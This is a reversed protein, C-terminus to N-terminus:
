DFYDSAVGIPITADASRASRRGRGRPSDGSDVKREKAKTKRKPGLPTQGGAVQPWDFMGLPPAFPGFGPAEPSGPRHSRAEDSPEPPRGRSAAPQPSAQAGFRLGSSDSPEAGAAPKSGLETVADQSEEIQDANPVSQLDRSAFREIMTEASLSPGPDAVPAANEPLSTLERLNRRLEGQLRTVSTLYACKSEVSDSCEAEMLLNNIKHQALAVQEVLIRRTMETPQRAESVLETMFDCFAELPLGRITDSFSMSQLSLPTGIKILHVNRRRELRKRTEDESLGAPLDAADVSNYNVLAGKRIIDLIGLDSRLDISERFFSSSDNRMKTQIM